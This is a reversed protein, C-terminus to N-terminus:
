SAQLQAEALSRCRRTSCLYLNCCNNTTRQIHLHRELLSLLCRTGNCCALGSALHGVRRLDLFGVGGLASAMAM